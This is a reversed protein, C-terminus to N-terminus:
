KATRNHARLSPRVKEAGFGKNLLGRSKKASSTLGRFARGSHQKELLWNLDKDSVISPNATDVLIVEFYKHKGDEGVWYSNLVETNTFKRAARHEAISQISIKRTLKTVGMRKPRRGAVPRKHGGSGKRVRVRAVVIGQKAKFGLKRARALNSPHEVRVVAEKAKRFAQMKEQFLKRYNYDQSKEGSYEREFTAQLQKSFSM